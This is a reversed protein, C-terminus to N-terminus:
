RDGSTPPAPAPSPGPAPGPICQRLSPPQPNARTVPFFDVWCPHGIGPNPRIDLGTGWGTDTVLQRVPFNKTADPLSGCGPKGGPGGKAAVVPLNDPFMYPDNGGMLAVDVVFTRGDGGWVSTSNDLLWSTGQLTCTFSPSYANLLSTTPALTQVADVLNAKNAGLLNIGADSLGVTQLLLGDLAQKHDVITTGTTTVANLITVLDGAAAGYTNAAGALTRLDQRVVDSRSNLATLVENLDTTAQGIRPGRGRVGDAVATLVANLKMPDVMDLLDVLNAFVSNVETTVNQSRLVAGAALRTASPHDPYSLSVFKAGFITAVAIRADINAPLFRIQDPDIELQLRAGDSGGTIGSVRGVQVGRLKVAAGKELVLGARESTLTIPVFARFTGAFSTVTVFTLVAIVTFLFVAWWKNAIRQEGARLEM